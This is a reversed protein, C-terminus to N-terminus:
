VNEYMQTIDLMNLETNTATVGSLVDLAAWDGTFDKVPNLHAATLGPDVGDLINIEAASATVADSGLHLADKPVTLTRSVDTTTTTAEYAVGAAGIFIPANGLVFTTCHGDTFMFFYDANNATAFDTCCQVETGDLVCGKVGANTQTGESTSPRLNGDTKEVFTTSTVTHTGMVLDGNLTLDGNTDPLLAKGAESQGPVAVILSNLEAATATVGNLLNLESATSTVTVGNIQLTTADLTGTVDVNGSFTVKNQADATVVKGAESTGETTIDLRNFDDKDATVLHLKNLEASTALIGDLTNIEASSATLGAFHAVADNLQTASKDM